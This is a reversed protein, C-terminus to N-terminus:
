SDDGYRRSILLVNQMKQSHSHWLSTDQTAVNFLHQAKWFSEILLLMRWSFHPVQATRARCQTLSHDLFHAYRQKEPETLETEQQSDDGVYELNLRCQLKGERVRGSFQFDYDEGRVTGVQVYM